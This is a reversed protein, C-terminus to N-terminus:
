SKNKPIVAIKHIILILTNVLLESILQVKKGLSVKRYLLLIKLREVFYSFTFKSSVGDTSMIVLGSKYLKYKAKSYHELNFVADSSIKFSENYLGNDFFFQRKIITGTHPFNYHNMRRNLNPVWYEHKENSNRIISCVLLDYSDVDKSFIDLLLSNDYYKDDSNLFHIWEGEALRIGKNFANYIGTDPERIYRVKYDAKEIYDEVIKQTNDSSLNDIILHEINKFKQNLVSDLCNKIVNGRNYTATIITLKVPM